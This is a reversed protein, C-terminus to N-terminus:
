YAFYYRQLHDSATGFMAISINNINDNLGDDNYDDYSTDDSGDDWKMKMYM